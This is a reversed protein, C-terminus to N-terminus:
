LFYLFAERTSHTDKWCSCLFSIGAYTCAWHYKWALRGVKGDWCWGRLGAWMHTRRQIGLALPVRAHELTQSTCRPVDKAASKYKRASAGSGGSGLSPGAEKEKVEEELLHERLVSRGSFDIWRLSQFPFCNTIRCYRALTLFYLTFGSVAMYSFSHFNTVVITEDRVSSEPLGSWVHIYEKQKISWKKLATSKPGCCFQAFLLIRM